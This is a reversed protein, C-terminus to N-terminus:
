GMLGPPLDLGGTISRMEEQVADTVQRHADVCASEILSQVVERDTIEMTEPALRVNTILFKGNMTVVVMGAGASGARTITELKNQVDRMTSQM